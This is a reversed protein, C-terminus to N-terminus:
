VFPIEEEDDKWIPYDRQEARQEAIAWLIISLAAALGVVIVLAITVKM